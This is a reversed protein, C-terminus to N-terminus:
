RLGYGQAPAAQAPPLDTADSCMGWKEVLTNVVRESIWVHRPNGGHTVEDLNYLARWLALTRLITRDDYGRLRLAIALPSRM